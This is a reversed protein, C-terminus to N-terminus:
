KQGTSFGAGGRGKLGSQLVQDIVDEASMSKLVADAQTYAGVGIADDINKPDVIGCSSLIDKKQHGFFGKEGERSTGTYLREIKENQLITKEVIEAIDETKVKGYYFGTPELRILPAQSCKGHCGTEM